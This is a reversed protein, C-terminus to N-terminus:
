QLEYESLACGGWSLPMEWLLSMASSTRAFIALNLPPSPPPFDHIVVECTFDHRNEDAEVEGRAGGTGRRRGGRRNQAKRKIDVVQAM